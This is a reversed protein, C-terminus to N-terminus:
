NKDKWYCTVIKIHGKEIDPIIAACLTKSNSNPTAGEIVYKWLNPQTAQTPADYIFGNRLLYLLDGSLIERETLREEAHVTKSLENIQQTAKRPSLKEAMKRWWTDRYIAEYLGGVLCFRDYHYM